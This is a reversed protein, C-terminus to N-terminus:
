NLVIVIASVPSTIAVVDGAVYADDTEQEPSALLFHFVGWVIAAIAVIVALITLGRKRATPNGAPAPPTLVADPTPAANVKPAASTLTDTM